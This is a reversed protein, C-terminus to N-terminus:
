VTVVPSVRSSLGDVGAVQSAPVQLTRLNLAVVPFEIIEHEWDRGRVDCTAEVDLVLLWEFPMVGDRVAADRRQEAGSRSREKSEGRRRRATRKCMFSTRDAQLQGGLPVVGPAVRTRAGLLVPPPARAHRPTPLARATAIPSFVAPQLGIAGGCGILLLWLAHPVM